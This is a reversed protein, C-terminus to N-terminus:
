DSKSVFPARRKDSTMAAFFTIPKARCWNLSIIKSLANAEYFLMRSALPFSRVGFAM